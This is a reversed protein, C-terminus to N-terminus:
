LTNPRSVKAGEGGAIYAREAEFPRAAFILPAHPIQGPIRSRENPIYPYLNRSKQDENCRLFIGIRPFPRFWDRTAALFGRRGARAPSTAKSAVRPRSNLCFDNEEHRRGLPLVRIRNPQAM